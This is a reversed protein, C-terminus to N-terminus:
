FTYGAMLSAGAHTHNFARVELAMSLGRTAGLRLGVGLTGLVNPGGESWRAFDQVATAGPSDALAVGLGLAAYPSLRMDRGLFHWRGELWIAGFQGQVRSDPQVTAGLVGVAFDDLDVLVGGGFANGVEDFADWAVVTGGTLALELRVELAHAPLSVLAAALGVVAISARMM